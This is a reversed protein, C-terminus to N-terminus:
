TASVREGDLPLTGTDKLKGRPVKVETLFYRAGWIRRNNPRRADSRETSKRPWLNKGESRLEVVKVDYASLDWFRTNLYVSLGKIDSEGADPNGLVTDPQTESGILVVVTGHDKLWTPRIANWDIGDMLSPVPACTKQGNVDFETLEYEGSDPDLVIWIMAARGRKYSIVVVGEPNWPLSAIKAGVGFNEHIGGIKKGGAGLTSFFRILEEGTMGDGNDSITRRYIRHKGVARWEIGFEVRTANAELSNVLFERAWQYTGCAEFMRNVFHSAGTINVKM